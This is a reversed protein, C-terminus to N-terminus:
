QRLVRRVPDHLLAHQVQDFVIPCVQDPDIGLTRADSRRVKLGVAKPRRSALEYRDVPLRETLACHYRNMKYASPGVWIQAVHDVVQESRGVCIKLTRRSGILLLSM